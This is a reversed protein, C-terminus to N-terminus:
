GGCCTSGPASFAAPEGIGPATMANLGSCDPPTSSWCPPPREGDRRGPVQGASQRAPAVSWHPPWIGHRLTSLQRGPHTPHLAAVEFVLCSSMESRLRNWCNSCNTPATRM